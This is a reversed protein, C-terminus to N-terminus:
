LARVGDILKRVLQIDDTAATQYVEVLGIEAMDSVLVLVVGLPQKCTASIEAVSMRTTLAEWIKEHHSNAQPDDLDDYQGRRDVLSEMAVGEAARTRGRTVIFPRLVYEELEDDSHRSTM